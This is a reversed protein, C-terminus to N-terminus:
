NIFSRIYMTSKNINITKIIFIMCIFLISIMFLSIKFYIPMFIYYSNNLKLNIILNNFNISENTPSNILSNPTFLNISMFLYMPTIMILYILNHKYSMFNNPCLSTFYLFLIFLGGVMILFILYLLISSSMNNFLNLCILSTYIILLLNLKLPHTYLNMNILPYLNCTIILMWYNLNSFNMLFYLYMQTYM